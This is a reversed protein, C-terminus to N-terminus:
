RSESDRLIRESDEEIDPSPCFSGREHMYLRAVRSSSGRGVVEREREGSKGANGERKARIWVFGDTCITMFDKAKEAREARARKALAYACLEGATGVDVAPREGQRMVQTPCAAAM